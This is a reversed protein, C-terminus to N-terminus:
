ALAQRFHIAIQWLVVELNWLGCKIKFQRFSGRIMDALNIELLNFIRRLPM